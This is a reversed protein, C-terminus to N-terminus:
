SRRLLIKVFMACLKRPLLAEEIRRCLRFMCAPMSLRTAFGGSLLYGVPMFQEVLDIRWGPYDREFIQRDREFVIWPLAENAGSLPGSSAFKWDHADPVCPEHHLRNYVFRSWPTLWPEIMVIVGGPAVCTTAQAFFLRVDPVHHFVNTMLIARLGAKHFPLDHASCLCSLGEVALMDSAVVEPYLERLFGGGAGLELVAGDIEPVAGLLFAYWEEYIRRLFLKRNLIQKHEITTKPDDLNTM